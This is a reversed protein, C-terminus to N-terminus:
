DLSTYQMQQLQLRREVQLIVRWSAMTGEIKHDSTIFGVVRCVAASDRVGAQPWL